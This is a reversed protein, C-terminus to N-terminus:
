VQTTDRYAIIEEEVEELSINLFFLIQVLNKIRMFNDPYNLFHGLSVSTIDLNSAFTYMPGNEYIQSKLYKKLNLRINIYGRIQWFHVEFLNAM